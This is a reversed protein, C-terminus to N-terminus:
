RGSGSVARCSTRTPTSGGSPSPSRSWSSCSSPGSAPRRRAGDGPPQAADRRDPVRGHVGPQAGDDAGPLHGLGRSRPDPAALAPRHRRAGPRRAQDLGSVHSNKPLLGMLSMATTSKGSGSEGVIALVEGANLEFSADIVAPYWVGDVWFDIDLHQSRAPGTRHTDTPPRRTVPERGAPPAAVIVAHTSTNRGHNPRASVTTTPTSRRRRHQDRQQDRSRSSPAARRATAPAQDGTRAPRHEPSGLDDDVVAAHPEDVHEARDVQRPRRDVGDVRLPRQRQDRRVAPEGAPRCGGRADVLRDPRLWAAVGCCRGAVCPRRLADPRAVQRRASTPRRPAASGGRSPPAARRRAVEVVRPELVVVRGTVHCRRSSRRRPRAPRAPRRRAAHDSMTPEPVDPASAHPQGRRTSEDARGGVRPGQAQPDAEPAPRLRRAPRRRHVAPVARHRRHVRRALHVAVAPQSFAGQYDSVLSGLSVDPPQIGFGLFSLAAETLIGAGM